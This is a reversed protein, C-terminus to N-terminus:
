IVWQVFNGTGSDPSMDDGINSSYEPFKSTNNAIYDNARRVYFEAKSRFDAVMMKMENEEAVISNDSTHRYIGGNQIQYLQFPLLDVMTYFVLLPTLFTTILYSYDENGADDWTGDGVITLLKNLLDTGIVPQLHIDQATKIHPYFKDEDVNGGVGTLKMIDDRNILLVDAM